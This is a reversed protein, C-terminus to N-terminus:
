HMGWAARDRESINHKKMFYSFNRPDIGLERAANKRVWGVRGLTQLVIQRELIELQRRLGLSRPRLEPRRGGGPGIALSGPQILDGDEIVVAREVINELERVNGPWSHSLLATMAEPSFGAIGRHMRRNFRRLFANALLPVDDPRERLPPLSITIVSLRYFLDKRFREEKVAKTLDVNTTAVVRVDVTRTVSSGVPEFEREQLVRLLRTQGSLTMSGIEDLLITGGDAVEFRGKRDRIAGTFAGRVHGFLESELLTDALAACNVRVFPRSRRLSHHHITRAVVEKGTGSEGHVLITCDVPAVKGILRCIRRIAQSRGVLDPFELHEDEEGSADDGRWPDGSAEAGRASRLFVVSGAEGLPSAWLEGRTRPGEPDGLLVARVEDPRPLASPSPPEPARCLHTIKRGPLREVPVGLLHGARENGERVTVGDSSVFLVGVEGNELLARRERRLVDIERSLRSLEEQHTPIPRSKPHEMPNRRARVRASHKRPSSSPANGVTAGCRRHTPTM